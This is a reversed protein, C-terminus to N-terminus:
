SSIHFFSKIEQVMFSYLNENSKRKTEKKQANVLAKAREHIVKSIAGILAPNKKLIPAIDKKTIEYVIVNTKAMVNANRKAGTLLANDGFFDGITLYALTKPTDDKQADLFVEVVGQAIMFMSNDDNNQKVIIEGTKFCIPEIKKTLLKAEDATLTKFIDIQNLLALVNLEPTPAWPKGGKSLTYEGLTESVKLGNVHLFDTIAQLVTHRLEYWQDYVSVPYRITYNVGAANTELAGVFCKKIDLDPVKTLAGTLISVARDLPLHHDLSMIITDIYYPPLKEYGESALTSNPIVYTVNELTLLTTTRWKIKIVKGTIGNTLRIWDGIVYDDETDLILGSFADSLPTQLAFAIGAGILGGATVFNSIQQDFAYIGIACITIVVILFNVSHILFSPPEKKTRLKYPRWYLIDLLRIIHWGILAILIGKVLSELVYLFGQNDISIYRSAFQLGFLLLVNLATFILSFIKSRFNM